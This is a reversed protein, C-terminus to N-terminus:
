LNSSINKDSLDKPKGNMSRATSSNFKSWFTQGTGNISSANNENYSGPGPIPSELNNLNVKIEL